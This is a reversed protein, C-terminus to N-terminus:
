PIYHVMSITSIENYSIGNSIEVYQMRVAGRFLIIMDRIM